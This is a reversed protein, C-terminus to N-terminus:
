SEESERAPSARRSRALSKSLAEFLGLDRAGRGRTMNSDHQRYFLTVDDLELFTVGAQRLRCMYDVDEGYRLAPDLQGHQAFVGARFVYAGLNVRRQPLRLAEAVPAGALWRLQVLGGVVSVEPREQLLRTAQELKHPPWEDDVDLFAILGGGAAALGTNRAAAPGSCPQQLVKVRVDDARLARLAQLTDDTSGDDVFVVEIPRLSQALVTRWCDAIFRQGDHVPVIVSLACRFPDPLCVECRGIFRTSM